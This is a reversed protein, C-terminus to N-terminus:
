RGGSHKRLKLFLRLAKPTVVTEERHTIRLTVLKRQQAWRWATSPSVHLAAALQPLSILPSEVRIFYRSKGERTRREVGIHQETM